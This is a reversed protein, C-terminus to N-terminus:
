QLEVFDNARFGSGSNIVTIAGDDGFFDVVRITGKINGPARGLPRGTDPNNIIEGLNSVLLIDGATIGTKLGGNIYIKNRDVRAIRGKWGIKEIKPILKWSIKDFANSIAEDIVSLKYNKKGEISFFHSVSKEATGAVNEEFIVKHSAIDIARVMMNINCYYKTEKFLGISNGDTSLDVTFITGSVLSSLPMNKEILKSLALDDKRDLGPNANHIIATLQEPSEIVIRRSEKLKESLLTAARKNLGEYFHDTQDLFNAVLVFKRTKRARLRRHAARERPANKRLPQYDPYKKQLPTKRNFTYSNEIKSGKPLKKGQLKGPKRTTKCSFAIAVVILFLLSKQM